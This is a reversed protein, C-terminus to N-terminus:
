ITSFTFLLIYVNSEFISTDRTLDYYFYIANKTQAPSIGHNEKIQKNTEKKKKDYNLLLRSFLMSLCGSVQSMNMSLFLPITHVIKLPASMIRIGLRLQFVCVTTMQHFDILSNAYSTFSHIFSHFSHLVDNNHSYM